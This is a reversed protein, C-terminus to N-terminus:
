TPEPGLAIAEGPATQCLKAWVQGRASRDLEAARAAEVALRLSRAFLEPQWDRLRHEEASTLLDTIVPVAIDSRQHRLLLEALRLRLEFRQRGSEARLIQRQLHSVGPALGEPLPESAAPTAGEAGTSPVAGLRAREGELWTQTEPDAVPTADRDSFRFRVVDPCRNLLLVIQHSLIARAVAGDPGLGELAQAAYRQLDLWLPYQAFLDECDSLVAAQQGQALRAPLQKSLNKHGQPVPLPTKWKNQAVEAAREPRLLDHTAWRLSRSLWYAQPDTLSLARLAACLRATASGLHDALADLGLEELNPLPEGQGLAAVAAQVKPAVAPQAVMPSAATAWAAPAAAAPEPESAGIASSSAPSTVETPPKPQAAQKQEAQKQAAQQKALVEDVFARHGNLADRLERLLPYDFGMAVGSASGLEDAVRQSCLFAQAERPKPPRAQIAPVLEQAMWMLLPQRKAPIRPLCRDWGLKVLDLLSTLAAALCLYPEGDELERESHFASLALYGYVKLDLRKAAIATALSLVEEWKASRNLSYQAIAENFRALEPPETADSNEVAQRGLSALSHNQLLEESM